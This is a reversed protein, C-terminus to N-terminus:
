HGARYAVLHGTPFSYATLASVQTLCSILGLFLIKKM